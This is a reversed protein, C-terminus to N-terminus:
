ARCPATHATATPSLAGRAPAVAPQAAATALWAGERPEGSPLQVGAYGSVQAACGNDATEM